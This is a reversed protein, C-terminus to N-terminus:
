KTKVLFSYEVDQFAPVVEYEKPFDYHLRDSYQEIANLLEAVMQAIEKKPFIYGCEIDVLIVPQGNQNGAYYQPVNIVSM